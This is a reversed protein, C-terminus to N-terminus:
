MPKRRTRSGRSSSVPTARIGLQYETVGDPHYIELAPLVLTYHHKEAWKKMAAYIKYSGLLRGGSFIATVIEREPFTEEDLSAPVVDSRKNLLYGVKARLQSKPTNGTNDLLLAFPTNAQIGAKKLSKGVKEISPEIDNYAGTHFLYAIRYPPADARAVTIGSFAGLYYMIGTGGFLTTILGILVIGLFKNSFLQSQEPPM